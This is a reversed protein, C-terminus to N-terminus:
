PERGDRRFGAAARPGPRADPLVPSRGPWDSAPRELQRQHDAQRVQALVGGFNVTTNHTYTAAAPAQAFEPVGALTTWTVGDVSYEITVNKAGFGVFTEVMQNSNWVRMETLKYVKDFQYQIWNPLAGTSLWMEKAETSHQDTANLGSGNVTNEPGM